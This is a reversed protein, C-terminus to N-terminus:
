RTDVQYRESSESSTATGAAPDDSIVIAVAPRRIRAADARCRRACRAISRATVTPSTIAEVNTPTGVGRYPRPM